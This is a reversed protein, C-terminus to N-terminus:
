RKSLYGALKGVPRVSTVSATMGAPAPRVGTVTATMGAPKPRVDTVEATMDPRSTYTAGCDPCTKTDPPDDDVPPSDTRVTLNQNRSERVSQQMKKVSGAPAQDSVYGKLVGV